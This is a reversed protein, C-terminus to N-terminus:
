ILAICSTSARSFACYVNRRRTVEDKCHILNKFIPFIHQFTSGQCRRVTSTYRYSVDVIDSEFHVWQEWVRTNESSRDGDFNLDKLAKEKWQFYEQVQKPSIVIIRHRFDETDKVVLRFANFNSPPFQYHYDNANLNFPSVRIIKVAQNTPVAINRDTNISNDYKFIPSKLFLTEDEEFELDSQILENRILTNYHREMKNTFTIVRAFNYEKSKESSFCRICADFWLKFQRSSYVAIGKNNTYETSLSPLKEDYLLSNRIGTIYEKIPNDDDQRLIEELHIINSVKFTPSISDGVPSLQCADGVFLWKTKKYPYNVILEWLNSDIMSCEDIIVLDHCVAGKNKKSLMKGKQTTKIRLKLYNHITSCKIYNSKIKPELINVAANTTATVSIRYRSILNECIYNIITTKGTGAPGSICFFNDDNDKNDMWNMIEHIVNLQTRTLEM